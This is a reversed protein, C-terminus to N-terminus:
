TIIILVFSPNPAPVMIVFIFNLNSCVTSRCNLKSRHRLSLLQSIEYEYGAFIHDYFVAPTGPHTLIYAYGQM